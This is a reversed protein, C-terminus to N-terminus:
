RAARSSTSSGGLAYCSQRRVRLFFVDVGNKSVAVLCALSVSEFASLERRSDDVVGDTRLVVVCEVCMFTCTILFHFCVDGLFLVFVFSMSM